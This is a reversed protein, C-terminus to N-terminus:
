ANNNAVLTNGLEVNTPAEVEMAEQQNLENTETIVQQIMRDVFRGSFTTSGRICDTTLNTNPEVSINFKELWRLPSAQLGIDPQGSGHATNWWVGHNPAYCLTGLTNPEGRQHSWRHQGRRQIDMWIREGLQIQQLDRGGTWAPLCSTPEDAGQQQAQIGERNATPDPVWIQQVLQLHWTTNCSRCQSSGFWFVVMNIMAMNSTTTHLQSLQYVATTLCDHVTTTCIWHSWKPMMNDGPIM